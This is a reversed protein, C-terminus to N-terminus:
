VQGEGATGVQGPRGVDVLLVQWLTHLRDDEAGHRRQLLPEILEEEGRYRDTPIM